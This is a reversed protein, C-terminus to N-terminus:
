VFLNKDTKVKKQTNLFVTENLRNKQTGVDYILFLIKKNWVRLMLGAYLEISLPQM